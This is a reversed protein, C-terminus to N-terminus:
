PSDEDLESVVGLTEALRALEVARRVPGRGCVVSLRRGLRALRRRANLLIYLGSSDMFDTARLDVVVDGHGGRVIEDLEAGVRPATLIDFEGRVAIVTRGPRQSRTVSVRVPGSPRLERRLSGEDQVEETM